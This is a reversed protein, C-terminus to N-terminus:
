APVAQLSRRLGHVMADVEDDSSIFPPAVAITDGSFRLLLGENLACEFVRLAKLGPQGRYPELELAAAFGLNRV